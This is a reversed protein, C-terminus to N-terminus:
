LAIAIIYRFLKLILLKRCKPVSVLSLMCHQRSARNRFHRKQGFHISNTDASESEGEASGDRMEALAYSSLRLVFIEESKKIPM